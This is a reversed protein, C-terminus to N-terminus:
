INLSKYLSPQELRAKRLADARGIGDRLAIDEARKQLAAVLSTDTGKFMRNQLAPFGHLQAVRQAAVEMTVGCKKMEQSVRSEWTEEPARKATDGRSPSGRGNGHRQYSAYLDQHRQRALHLAQSKPVGEENSIKDVMAEFHRSNSSSTHSSIPLDGPRNKPDYERQTHDILDKAIKGLDEDEDDDPDEDDPNDDGNGADRLASYDYVEDDEADHSEDNGDDHTFNVHYKHKLKVLAADLYGEAANLDGSELLQEAKAIMAEIKMKREQKRPRSKMIRAIALQQCPRDVAAIREVRIDKLIRRTM